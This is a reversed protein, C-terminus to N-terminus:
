FGRRFYPHSGEQKKVYMFITGRTRARQSLSEITGGNNFPSEVPVERVPPLRGYGTGVDKWMEGAGQPDYIFAGEDIRDEELDRPIFIGASCGVILNKKSPSREVLVVSRLQYVDDMITMTTEFNVITDNLAEWGAVTMPLTTFNYPTNLRTINITKFRRGVYFFLVDRSHIISQAKPVIMKNEVFWQPQTLAEDIAVATTTRSSINLPLRLPIMSVTTVNTIGAMSLPDSSVGFATTGFTGWLRTTSVITPRLSFASLMRRLITGEDKVYTLDPADYINTRCNDIALLFESLRENYYKGQRLNLVSDWVRTQLLFRNKLDVLPSASSCAHENPDTILDWYLEMDPQTMLPRGEHKSKVIYGLNAILMHSELINVKPFFLAAIVPHVYSYYNHRDEKMVGTLAEPACDRYTLTQIVIQSHLTKTQGYHELIEKLVPLESEKYHLKDATALVAGYGLTKSLKTHPLSPLGMKADRDTFALKAYYDFEDDTLKYKRAYKKAKKMLEAGSLNLAAYRDYILQKFKRAKKSIYRQREKYADFIADVLEEDKYKTRLRNLVTHDSNGNKFLNKLEKAIAPDNSSRRDSYDDGKTYRHSSKSKQLDSM